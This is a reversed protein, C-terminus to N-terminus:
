EGSRSRRRVEGIKGRRTKGRPRVTAEAQVRFSGVETRSETLDALATELKTYEAQHEALAQERQAPTDWLEIILYRRTDQTDRMVTTGRFGACRAFLKSWASGPGYALEFLGQTEEKVVFERIIEIM